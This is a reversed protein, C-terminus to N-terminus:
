AIPIHSNRRQLRRLLVAIGVGALIAFGLFLKMWAHSSTMVVVAVGLLTFIGLFSGFPGAGAHTGSAPIGPTGYSKMVPPPESDKQRQRPM